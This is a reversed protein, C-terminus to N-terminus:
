PIKIEEMYDNIQWCKKYNWGTNWQLHIMEFDRHGKDEAVTGLYNAESVHETVAGEQGGTEAKM